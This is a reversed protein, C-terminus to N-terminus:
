GRRSGPVEKIEYFYRIGNKSWFLGNYKMGKLMQKVISGEISGADQSQGSSTVKTVYYQANSDIDKPTAGERFTRTFRYIEDDVGLYEEGEYIEQGTEEAMSELRYLMDRDYIGTERYKTAFEDALAYVDKESIRQSGSGSSAGTKYFRRPMLDRM